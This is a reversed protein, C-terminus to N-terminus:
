QGPAVSRARHCEGLIKADVDPSLDDDLADAPRGGCTEADGLESLPHRDLRQDSGSVASEVLGLGLASVSNARGCDTVGVAGTGLSVHTAAAQFPFDSRKTVSSPWGGVRPNEASATSVSTHNASDAPM